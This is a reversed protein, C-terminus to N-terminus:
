ILKLAKRAAKQDSWAIETKGFCMSKEHGKGCIVVIDDKRALKQIAFNIAEQRDPFRFFTKGEIGGAKKCGDTIQDIIDNVDETRPDEATLVVLDALRTAIEGMMPRKLFDREGACGFVVILRSHKNKLLKLTKLTKELANPTHAFDVLVSFIQGKDILEMRGQVSSFNKISSLIDEWSIGIARAAGIAALINSVNYDGFIKVQSLFTKKGQHVLFEM